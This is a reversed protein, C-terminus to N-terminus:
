SAEHGNRNVGTASEAKTVRRQRFRRILGYTSSDHTSAAGSSRVESEIVVALKKGLEVGWQDFSNINWIIGQVFVKHEYLALLAGFTAPELRDMCITNTPRNGDFSRHPQGAVQLGNMLAETQAFCNALLVDHHVDLAHQPQMCAIFDAPIPATGQHLLQFFAHQGNTGPEGWIVPGTAYDVREGSLTVSKGNSEMDLQQLYAPLRHLYRDYPAILQSNAGFFNTYWIGILALVVPLNQKLPAEAFHRDMAHAGGLLAEFADMGIQLAVPLGIASWLSYRGGVWDWFEFMNDPDIGFAAVADAHTSVAVFHQAVASEPAGSSLLWNRATRANLLTERTTFTKSSIVFLTTELDVSQLVEAIDAGDVNSVFHMTLGKDGHPKLAECVMRPGLDSGGIGINVVDTIARGTHGRWAGERVADTFRRMKALVAFVDPVVDKGDVLIPTRRRERLAVHLVPRNETTNVREGAFMAHRREEVGAQRALAGLLDLTGTTILNKSYDVFIGAAELSFREFRECDQMFLDAISVHAMDERHEALARWAPSQTLNSM